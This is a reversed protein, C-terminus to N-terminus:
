SQIKTKIADLLIKKEEPDTYPDKLKSIDINYKQLILENKIQVDQAKYEEIAKILKQLETKEKKNLM